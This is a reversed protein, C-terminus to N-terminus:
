PVTDSKSPVFSCVLAHLLMAEEVNSAVLLTVIVVKRRLEAIDQTHTHTYRKLKYGINYTFIKYEAIIIFIQLNHKDIFLMFTPITVSITVLLVSM